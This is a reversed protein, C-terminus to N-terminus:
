IIKAFDNEFETINTSLNIHKISNSLSSLFTKISDLNVIPLIPLNCRFYHSYEFSFIEIESIFKPHNLIMDNFQNLSYYNSIYLNNLSANNEIFLRLLDTCVEMLEKCDATKIPESQLNILQLYPNGNLVKQVSLWNTVHSRIRYFNVTKILSP